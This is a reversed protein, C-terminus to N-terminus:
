RSVEAARYPWRCTPQTAQQWSVLLGPRPRASRRRAAAIILCGLATLSQGPTPDGEAGGLMRGVVTAARGRLAAECAPLEGRLDLGEQFEPSSALWDALRVFQGLLAALAPGGAAVGPPLPGPATFRSVADALDRQWPEWAPGGLDRSQSLRATPEGPGRRHHCAVAEALSRAAAQPLGQEASLWTTLLSTGMAQHDTLAALPFPLGCASLAQRHAPSQGQFGPTAKGLDHWGALCALWQGAVPEAAGLLESCATRTAESLAQQWLAEGVAATGLLHHLLPVAPRTGSRTFKAWPIQLEPQDPSLRTGFRYRSRTSSVDALM